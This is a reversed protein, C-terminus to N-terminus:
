EMGRLGADAGLVRANQAAGSGIARIISQFNRLKIPWAWADVKRQAWSEAAKFRYGRQECFDEIAVTVANATVTPCWGCDNGQTALNAPPGMEVVTDVKADLHALHGGCATMICPVGRCRAELPVMGFGEGRSPQVVADFNAVIWAPLDPIPASVVAISEYPKLVHRLRGGHGEPLKLTLRLKPYTRLAGLFGQIVQATGKRQPFDLAGSVHLLAGQPSYGVRPSAYDVGHSVVHIPVAERVGSKRFAEACFQSPVILRTFGNCTRVWEQPIPDAECVTVLVREAHGALWGLGAPPYGVCVGIAAHSNLGVPLACGDYVAGLAGISHATASVEPTTRLARAYARSVQAFSGTGHFQGYLQVTIV